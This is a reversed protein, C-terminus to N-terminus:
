RATGAKKASSLQYLLAVLLDQAGQEIMVMCDRKGCEEYGLVYFLGVCWMALASRGPKPM